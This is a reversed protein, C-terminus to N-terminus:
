TRSASQKGIGRLVCIAPALLAFLAGWFLVERNTGYSVSRFVSFYFATLVVFWFIGFLLRLRLAWVLPRRTAVALGLGVVGGYTIVEAAGVFGIISGTKQAVIFCVFGCFLVWFAYRM